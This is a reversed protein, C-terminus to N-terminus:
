VAGKESVHHPSSLPGAIAEDISLPTQGMRFCQFSWKTPPRPPNERYRDAIHDFSVEWEYRLGSFELMVAARYWCLEALPSEFKRLWDAELVCMNKYTGAFHIIQSEYQAVRRDRTPRLPLMSFMDRTIFPWEADSVPLGLIERRNARYIRKTEATFAYGPCEIYGHIIVGIGM